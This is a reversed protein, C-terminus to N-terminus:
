VEYSGINKERPLGETISPMLMEDFTCLVHPLLDWATVSLPAHTLLLYPWM